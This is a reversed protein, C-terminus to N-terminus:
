YGGQQTPVLRVVKEQVTSKSKNLSLDTQDTGTSTILFHQFEFNTASVGVGRPAGLMSSNYTITVEANTPNPNVNGADTFPNYPYVHTPPPAFNQINATVVQIGGEGRYFADTSGRKNGSIKMEFTSTFISALGILTLVIMMILAIVLAAGSQNKLAFNKKYMVACINVPKDNRAQSLRGRVQYPPIWYALGQNGAKAPVVGPNGSERSHRTRNHNNVSHMIHM